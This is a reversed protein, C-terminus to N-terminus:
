ECPEVIAALARLVDEGNDRRADSVVDVRARVQALDNM